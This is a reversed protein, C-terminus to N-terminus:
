EEENEDESPPVVPDTGPDVVEKVNLFSIFRGDSLRLYQTGKENVVADVRGSIETQVMVHKGNLDEGLVGIGYQGDPLKQGAENKGDWEYQYSGAKKSGLEVSRVIAGESDYINMMIKSVPEGFGYYITSANGENMSIKYGEAKVEKGIFSVASLMDSQQMSSGLSKIGDNINTLQELSSFEALQSTMETDEMPNLPDQHTLQAVLITLFSDQDMKSKHEPTNSAALRQEQTGLVMGGNDIYGM